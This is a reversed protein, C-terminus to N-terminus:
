QIGDELFIETKGSNIRQALLQGMFGGLLFLLVGLYM